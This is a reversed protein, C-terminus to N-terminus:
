GQIVKFEGGNEVTVDTITCSREHSSKLKIRKVVSIITPAAAFVVVAQIMRGVLPIAGTLVFLAVFSILMRTDPVSENGMYFCDIDDVGRPDCTIEKSNKSDIVYVFSATDGRELRNITWLHEIEDASEFKKNTASITQSSFKEYLDVINADDPFRFLLQQATISPDGVNEVSVSFQCLNDYLQGKYSVTLPDNESAASIRYQRLEFNLALRKRRKRESRIKLWLTIASSLIAVVATIVAVGAGSFIWQKNAELWDTM